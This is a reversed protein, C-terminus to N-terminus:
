TYRGQYYQYAGYKGFQKQPVQNLVAGVIPLEAGHIQKLVGRTARRSVADAKVLYIIGDTHKAILLTDSVALCPASDLVVRDYKEKLLQLLAQFKKSTIVEVANPPLSGLPMIDFGAEDNRHIAEEVTATGAIVDCLGHAEQELRMRKAIAPKRMDCDVLLVRETEALVAALNIAFTSKGEQPAASTVVLCKHPNDIGTLMLSARVTRFCESFASKPDKLLAPKAGESQAVKSRPISGLVGLGTATELEQESQISDDLFHRALALLFALFGSALITAAVILRKRPSFPRTPVIAKDIIRANVSEFNATVDTEKFRQLFEEYIQRNAAVERELSQAEYQKRDLGQIRATGSSVVSQLSKVNKDAVKYEVRVGDAANRLQREFAQRADQARESASVMEPHKPGYRSQLEVVRDQAQLYSRKTQQVLSDELLRPIEQLRLIDSGAARIQEIVNGIESRLKKADRLRRTSDSLDEEVLGRSGGVNVLQNQERFEQLKRESEELKKKVEPMRENIWDSAAKTADVRADLGYQIYGEALANSVKASLVPDKSHFSVGVLQTQFVPSVDVKVMFRNIAAQKKDVPVPAVTGTPESSSVIAQISEIVGALVSKDSEKKKPSFEPHDFLELRQMVRQALDRSRIIEFQTKLYEQTGYGPEYVEDINVVQRSKPEIHLEATARYIPTISYALVVSALTSIGVIGVISWRYRLLVAILSRLDLINDMEAPSHGGSPSINATM